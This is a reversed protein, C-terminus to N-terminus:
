AVSAIVHFGLKVTAEDRHSSKGPRRPCHKLCTDSVFPRPNTGVSAETM